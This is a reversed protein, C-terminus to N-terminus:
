KLKVEVTQTTIIRIHANLVENELDGMDSVNSRSEIIHDIVSNMRIEILRATVVQDVETADNVIEPHNILTVVLPLDRAVPDKAEVNMNETELQNNALAATTLDSVDHGVDPVKMAETDTHDPPDVTVGVVPLVGVDPDIMVDENMIDSVHPNVTAEVIQIDRVDLTKTEAEIPLVRM